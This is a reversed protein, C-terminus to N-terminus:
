KSISSVAIRLNPSTDTMRLFSPDAYRQSEERQESHCRIRIRTSPTVAICLDMLYRVTKGLLPGRKKREREVPGSLSMAVFTSVPAATPKATVLTAFGSSLNM